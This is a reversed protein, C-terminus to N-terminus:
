SLDKLTFIILIYDQIGNSIVLNVEISFRISIGLSKHSSLRLERRGIVGFFSSLKPMTKNTKLKILYSRYLTNRYNLSSGNWRKLLRGSSLPRVANSSHDITKNDQNYIPYQATPIIHCTYLTHRVGLSNYCIHYLFTQM